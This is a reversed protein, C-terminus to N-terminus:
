ALHQNPDAHAALATEVGAADSAAIARVLAADAPADALAPAAWGSVCAALALAIPLKAGYEPM